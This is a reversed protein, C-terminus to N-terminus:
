SRATSTATPTATSPTDSRRSRVWQGTTRWTEYTLRTGSSSAHARRTSSAAIKGGPSAGSWSAVAAYPAREASSPASSTPLKTRLSVSRGSTRPKPPGSDTTTVPPAPCSAPGTPSTRWARGPGPRGPSRAHAVEVVRGAVDPPHHGRQAVDLGLDRHVDLQGRRRGCPRSARPRRRPRRPRAAASTGCRRAPPRPTGTPRLHQRAPDVRRQVALRRELARGPQVVGDPVRALVAELVVPEEVHQDRGATGEVAGGGRRPPRPAPAARPRRAAPRPRRSSSRAPARRQNM